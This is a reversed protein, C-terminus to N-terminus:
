MFYTILVKFLEGYVMKKPKVARQPYYCKILHNSIPTIVIIAIFLERHVM